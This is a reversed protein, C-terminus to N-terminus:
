HDGIRIRIPGKIEDPDIMKGKQMLLVKGTKHLAIAAERIEGMHNRWDKPFMERAIESPCTTKLVGRERTIQLITKCISEQNTM